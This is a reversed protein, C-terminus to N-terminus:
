SVTTLGDIYDELLEYIIQVIIPTNTILISFVFSTIVNSSVFNHKIYKKISEVVLAKKEEGLLEHKNVYSIIEKKIQNKLATIKEITFLTKIKEKFSFYSIISM